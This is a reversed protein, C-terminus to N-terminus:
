SRPCTTSRTMSSLGATTRNHFCLTVLPTLRTVKGQQEEFLHELRALVIGGLQPWCGPQNFLIREHHHYYYYNTYRHAHTQVPFTGRPSVQVPLSPPLQLGLHHFATTTPLPFLLRPFSDFLRPFHFFFFSLLSSSFVSIIPTSTNQPASFLFSILHVPCLYVYVFM